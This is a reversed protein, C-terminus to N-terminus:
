GARPFDFPGSHTEKYEDWASDVKSAHADQTHESILEYKETESLDERNEIAQCDDCSVLHALYLEKAYSM